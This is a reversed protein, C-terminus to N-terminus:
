AKKGRRPPKQTKGQEGSKPSKKAPAKLIQRLADDFPVPM